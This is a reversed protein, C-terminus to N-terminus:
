LISSLTALFEEETVSMSHVFYYYGDLVFKAAYDGSYHYLTVANGDITSIEGDGYGLSSGPYNKESFDISIFRGDEPESTSAGLSYWVLGTRPTVAEENDGTNIPKSVTHEEIYAARNEIITLDAPFKAKQSVAFQSLDYDRYELFALRNPDRPKEIENFVIHIYDPVATGKQLTESDVDMDGLVSPTQELIGSHLVGFGLLAVLCCCSVASVTRKIIKTRAKKEALYNERREFVSEAVENYSKM